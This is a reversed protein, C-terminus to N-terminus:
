RIRYRCIPNALVRDNRGSCAPKMPRRLPSVQLGAPLLGFSRTEGSWSREFYSDEYTRNRLCELDETLEVVRDLRPITVRLVVPDGNLM